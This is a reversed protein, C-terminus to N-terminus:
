GGIWQSSSCPSSEPESGFHVCLVASEQDLANLPSLDWAPNGDRSWTELDEALPETFKDFQVKSFDTWLFYDRNPGALYNFYKKTADIREYDYPEDVIYLVQMVGESNLYNSTSEIAKYQANLYIANLEASERYSFANAVQGLPILAVLLGLGLTLGKLIARNQLMRLSGFLVLATLSLVGTLEVLVGYRSPTFTGSNVSYQYFYSESAVLLLPTASLGSILLKQLIVWNSKMTLVVGVLAFVLAIWFPWLQIATALANGLSRSQGYVDEGDELIPPLFGMATFVTAATSLAGSFVVLWVKAGHLAAVALAVLLPAILSISNEKSGVALAFGVSVLINGLLEKERTFLLALGWGTVTLGWAVYLESPGLRTVIDNWSSLAAIMLGSIMSITMAWKPTLGFNRIALRFILGTLALVIALFLGIRMLYWQSGDTGHIISGVARLFAYAPRFREFEGFKAIESNQLMTPLGSWSQGGVTLFSIFEHDDILGLKAGFMPSYLFLGYLTPVTVAM